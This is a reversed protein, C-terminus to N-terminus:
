HFLNSTLRRFHSLKLTKLINCVGSCNLYFQDYNNSLVSEERIQVNINPFEDKVVFSLVSIILKVMSKTRDVLLNSPGSKHVTIKIEVRM